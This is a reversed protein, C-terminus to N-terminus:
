EAKPFVTVCRSTKPGRRKNGKQDGGQDAKRVNMGVVRIGACSLLVRMFSTAGIM